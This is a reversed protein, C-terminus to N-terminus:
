ARSAADTPNETSEVHAVVVFLGYSLVLASLRRLLPKLISSSSRGKSVVSMVVYSDTLHFVRASVEKFHYVRYELAHILSRLELANIHEKKQWRYAFGKKWLWWRASASQRPFARPNTIFGSSVRVDSGTHNVRRLLAKRLDQVCAHEWKEGYVLERKLPAKMFLPTCMGPALGMRDWLMEYTVGPIWKMCALAAFYVFTFCNFGDGVLSKRTDEYVGPKQKIESASWCLATHEFGLGHLMERESASLLRWNNQRWILFKEHYQYPPFRYSDAEWRWLTDQDCKLIGAPSPPPRARVISKLCTPFITGAEEGPWICGEELWSNTPPFQHEFNVEIWRVNEELVVGPIDVVKVNTWCFRPRHVPVVQSSNVRFPKRGFTQSIQQEASNDMSAVNEAFYRIEFDFGFVKRLLKLIRIVEFFLGSQTGELNKRGFKVSSLDVCPFGAWLHIAEILPYLYKWKKVMTEDIIKVDKEIVVNPWRRSTVRNAASNIEFSIAVQPCVGVLDYCRFACGIGNFLSIVMVPIQPVMGHISRDISAFATGEESLERSFGVAGGGESADSATTVDSIGARLDGRLVLALLCCHFLESRVVNEVKAGCKKKSVFTWLMDFVVMGPRRFALIHVWRGALVQIWKRNLKAKRIVSMTSQILKILRESSPGITGEIGNVEAGLEVARGAAVVRKAKSSLVGSTEWSEEVRDHLWGEQSSKCNIKFKEMSCFNDLYVHFWSSGSAQSQVLSDVVWPPIPADRRVKHDEPLRGITTLRDAIEQMISVASSWGMPIVRCALFYTVEQVMGVEKGDVALNFCLFRSWCPPIGFLYFASSMDSQYLCVEEDQHLVLSLYQTISPLGATSGRAQEMVANSPILNMIVRQIERGDDLRKGKGVGFLGNLVKCGGVRLVDKEPVWSCVRREVLLKALRLRDESEIHVKAQLVRRDTPVDEKLSEEPNELFWRTGPCVFDVARISGGHSAPPLAPEAQDLTLVQMKPVEEGTYTIFRSSLEQEAEEPTRCIECDGSLVRKIGSRLQGLARMQVHTCRGLHIARSKGALGNVAGVVCVMWADEEYGKEECEQCFAQLSCHLALEHLHSSEGLPLPFPSRSRRERGRLMAFDKGMNGLIIKDVVQLWGRRDAAFSRVSMTWALACGARKLSSSRAALTYFLELGEVAEAEEITKSSHDRTFGPGKSLGEQEDGGQEREM